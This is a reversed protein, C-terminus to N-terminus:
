SQEALLSEIAQQFASYPQAGSIFNGNLFFAPTGNVGLAIGQTVDTQVAATYRGSALCEGFATEDLGLEGAFGAFIEAADGRGSWEDQRGFLADHMALFADQEGACRAAEAALQAQPHISTLPFDKFVYRVQGTDVYNAVIQPLTETFHRSCYPCQFDTFEVLVVPADAAGISFAGATDVDVPGAPTATPQPASQVYAEALTGQEALGVAYDFLDYQQAGSVPFGNIFFAPTGNVGLAFGEDQNAQIVADFRGDGLCAAFADGDLGLDAAIGLFVDNLTAEQGAWEAQRAFLADHMAWYADQEGACRAAVAAARAQPHITDLPFDKVVYRVRGTEIMESLMRPFTEAAHRACYPCQYDTFEIITVAAADDGRTAAFDDMVITAPTPAVAPAAPASPEVATIPEGAAAAAIAADFTALPYAGAILQDNLFFSPTSNVGRNLGLDQDAAIAEAYRGEDLCAGFAAEDLGLEAAFARFADAAGENAWADIDAFLRDHMAWYAAAGAEGACRAANAAAEAQPHISSLPFDHFIFVAQGAAVQNALLSPLTEESFQGCYPCQFDSFAEIVVPADLRGRYPRGEATFGVPIGNADTEAPAAAETPAAAPASTAAAPASTAAATGAPQGVFPVSGPGQGSPACAALLGLLLVLAIPAFLRVPRNDPQIM